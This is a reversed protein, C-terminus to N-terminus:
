SSPDAPAANLTPTNALMQAVNAAARRVRPDESGNGAIARLQALSGLDRHLGLALVAEGRVSAEKDALAQRLAPLAEPARTLGLARIVQGRAEANEVSTYKLLAPVAAPDQFVALGLAGLRAVDANADELARVYVAKHSGKIAALTLLANQAAERVVEDSDKVTEFLAAAAQPDRIKGLAQAADSRVFWEKDRLAGILASTARGDRLDGLAAVAARRVNADADAAAKALMPVAPGQGALAITRAAGVRINPDADKLLDVLISDNKSLQALDRYAGYALDVRGAQVMLRVCARRLPVSRPTQRLALQLTEFAQGQQGAQMQTNAKRVAQSEPSSCATLVAAALLTISGCSLARRLQSFNKM